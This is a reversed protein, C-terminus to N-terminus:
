GADIEEEEGEVGEREKGAVVWGAANRTAKSEEEEEEDSDKVDTEEEDEEDGEGEDGVEGEEGEILLSDLALEWAGSWGTSDGLCYTNFYKSSNRLQPTFILVSLSRSM